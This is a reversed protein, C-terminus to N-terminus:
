VHRVQEQDEAVGELLIQEVKIDAMYVYVHSTKQSKIWFVGDKRVNMQIVEIWFTQLACM